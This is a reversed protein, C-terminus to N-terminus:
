YAQWRDNAENRSEWGKFRRGARAYKTKEKGRGVRQRYSLPKPRQSHLWLNHLSGMTGGQCPSLELEAIRLNHVEDTKRAEKSPVTIRVIRGIMSVCNVYLIFIM